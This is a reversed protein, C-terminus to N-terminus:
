KSILGLMDFHMQLITNKVVDFIVRINNKDLFIKQQILEEDIQTSVNKM